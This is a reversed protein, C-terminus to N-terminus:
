LCRALLDAIPEPDPMGHPHHGCGPKCFISIPLGAERYARELLLGNEPYPVSRDSDGYVMVVPIRNKVLTPIHDLPHDRFAIFDSMTMGYADLLEKKQEERVDRECDGMGFPWSWFNVVPADLYLAAIREPAIGALKIAQLGGCSMGIPIFRHSLGLEKELYDAFALKAEQETRTGCRERTKLHARCYGRRLMARETDPFAEFYETKLIWPNGARRENPFIVTAEREMFEFTLCRFEDEWLTETM